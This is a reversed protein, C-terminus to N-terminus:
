GKCCSSLLLTCSVDKDQSYVEKRPTLLYIIRTLLGVNAYLNARCHFGRSKSDYFCVFFFIHIPIILKFVSSIFARLLVLCSIGNKISCRLSILWTLAMRLLSFILAMFYLNINQIWLKYGVLMSKMIRCLEGVRNNSEIPDLTKNRLDLTRAM